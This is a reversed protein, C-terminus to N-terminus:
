QERGDEKWGWLIWPPGSNAAAQELTGLSALEVLSVVLESVARINVVPIPASILLVSPLLIDGRPRIAPTRNETSAMEPEEVHIHPM